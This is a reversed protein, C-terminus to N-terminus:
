KLTQVFRLLIFSCVSITITNFCSLMSLSISIITFYHWLNNLFIRDIFWLRRSLWHYFTVAFRSLKCRDVIEKKERRINFLLQVDFLPRMVHQKSSLQMRNCLADSSMAIQWEFFVAHFAFVPKRSSSLMERLDHRTDSGNANNCRSLCISKYRVTSTISLRFM